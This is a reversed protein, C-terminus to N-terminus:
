NRPLLGNANRTPQPLDKAKLQQLLVVECHPNWGDWNAVWCINCCFIGYLELKHGEYSHLGHNYQCGCVGCECMIKQDNM